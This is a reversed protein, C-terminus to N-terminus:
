FVEFYFLMQLMLSYSWIGLITVFGGRSSFIRRGVEPWLLSVCRSLAIFALSMWEAFAM